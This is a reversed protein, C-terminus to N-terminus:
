KQNFFTTFNRFSNGVYKKQTIRSMYPPLCDVSFCLAQFQLRKKQRAGCRVNSEFRLMLQM